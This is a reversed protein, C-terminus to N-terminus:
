NSTNNKMIESKMRRIYELPVGAIDIIMEEPLKKRIMNAVIREVGQKQGLKIGEHKSARLILEEIGMTETRGKIQDLHHEFIINNETNEFRIYSNLFNMISRIKKKDFSKEFFKRALKLKIEMLTDDDLRNQKLVSRATLVIMAFPNGSQLLEEESQQSIKYVNYHYELRTGLFETAYKDVRAKPSKETLIAYASIRKNYKDFIRYFYTYMRQPFDPKYEGQVECHILIWEEIGERTYVKALKDVIKVSFEDE